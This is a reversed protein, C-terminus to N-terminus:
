KPLKGRSLAKSVTEALDCLAVPKMLLGRIGQLRIRKEDATESFGTCLLIPIDARVKLIEKALEIGTMHPMTLDTIVLDFCDPRARFAQLADYSSYREAVDYGLSELMERLMDVISREDDVVLVLGQGTPLTAPQVAPVPQSMTRVRPLYVDFTTGKGPESFVSIAGSLSKVIGYTLALGLGTGESQGKTTFYPEFIRQRVSEDIGHGTDAVTLKLCPGPELDALDRRASEDIAVNKLSISLTGGHERMAHSANACLNMLVQHIQTPDATVISEIADEDLAQRIEITSPLTSRILKLTEKILISVQVPKHEQEAKRSFTLIQKVLDRARVASRLIQEINHYLRNDQPIANLSLESYGIIPALINNFDHAIGGALTGIAEMKQAQYLQSALLKRDTIDQATGELHISGGSKDPVARVSLTVWADSKDKRRIQVEFEQAVGQEEILRLLESRREPNVYIQRAIDNVTNLVEEPSEYGLIRAFANNLSLFRGEITSQYIGTISNEFISRYKTEAEALAEEMRKRDSIDRISEIAGVVNGRSDFLASAKGYLYVGGGGLATMYAEGSIVGDGRQAAVYRKEIEQHHAFVLDILIPRREGYFPLAYEYNDKGLIDPAAIGTMDEMARNWAIVKGDKDIVFTADPLFNIIDSFQQRSEKLAEAAQKQETIDRISEIGGVRNGHADLLPATAAFVYAGEGGRLCPTYAEAYYTDGRKWIYPYGSEIKEDERDILDLLHPRRDGYFPITCAYDGKGIMEEKSIGTMEEIARNWAIVRKDKNVVLTADPLFEIIDNLQRNASILADEAEKCATVDEVTEIAGVLTGVSNRIAAATVHLWRKTGGVEPLLDTAEYAKELSGSKASRGGYWASIEEPTAEDVLLDAMCPREAAYFASWHRTTGVVKEAPIRSMEEIAKNWYVVCHDTGIVFAPIPYGQIISRLQQESDKQWQEARKRETIDEFIGVAGSFKQDETNIRKYIARLPTTKGGFLSHYEGEYYGTGNEIADKVAQLMAPDRVERLMDFGLIKEKPIGMIDAFKDNLDQIIGMRDFHIIGLPVHNFILRYKERSEKLTAEMQKRKADEKVILLVRGLYYSCLFGALLIIGALLLFRNRFGDMIGLIQREPTAVAISWHNHPLNVPLYVAYKKVTEVTEGRVRNFFFTTRGQRGKVMEDAMALVSPFDRCNEYVSRGVHGPVPCYLEVGKRSIMWAYGDEALRIGELYRRALHAFPISIALSGDFAGDRFVPVHFAINDLGGVCKFVDSVVPEHTKMLERVCEQGSLDSGIRDPPSPLAYVVRGAADMRVLSTIAGAHSRYFIEMLGKGREDLVVISEVHALSDLLRAYHNFFGELGRAAEEALIAQQDDLQDITKFKVEQYASYLLIASLAALLLFACYLRIYKM